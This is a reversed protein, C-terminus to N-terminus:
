KTHSYLAVFLHKHAYTWCEGPRGRGGGNIGGEGNKKDMYFRPLCLFELKDSNKSGNSNSTSTICSRDCTSSWVLIMPLSCSACTKSTFSIAFTFSTRAESCCVEWDLDDDNGGTEADCEVLWINDGLEVVLENSDGLEVVLENSDGLEVVLKNSDGM